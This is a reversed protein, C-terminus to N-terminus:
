DEGCAIDSGWELFKPNERLIEYGIINRPYFKAKEIGNELITLEDVIRNNEVDTATIIVEKDPLYVKVGIIKPKEM